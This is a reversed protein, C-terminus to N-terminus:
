RTSQVRVVNRPWVGKKTIIVAAFYGPGMRYWDSIYKIWKFKVTTIDNRTLANYVADRVEKVVYGVRQFSGDMECMFAIAGPDVPNDSEVTIEVPVFVGADILVSAWELLEQYRREKTCGIVKFAITHTSRAFTDAETDSNEISPSLDSDVGESIDDKAIM